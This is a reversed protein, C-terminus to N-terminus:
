VTTKHSHASLQAARSITNTHLLTIQQQTVGLILWRRDGEPGVEVTVVKQHPGVAVASIIKSQGVTNVQFLSKKKQLWKVLWPLTALLALFLLVSLYSETM